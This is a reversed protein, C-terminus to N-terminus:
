GRCLSLLVLGFLCLSLIEVPALLSFPVSGMPVTTACLVPVDPASLLPSEAAVFSMPIITMGFPLRKAILTKMVLERSLSAVFSSIM